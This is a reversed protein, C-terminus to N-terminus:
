GKDGPAKALPGVHLTGSGGCRRCDEDLPDREATKDNWVHRTVRGDGGCDPCDIINPSRSTM